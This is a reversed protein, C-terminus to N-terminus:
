MQRGENSRKHKKKRKRDKKGGHGDVNGPIGKEGRKGRGMKRKGDLRRKKVKWKERGGKESTKREGGGM